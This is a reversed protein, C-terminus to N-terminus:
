SQVTLTIVFCAICGNGVQEDFICTDFLLLIIYRYSTRNDFQTNQSGIHSLICFDAVDDDAVTLYGVM